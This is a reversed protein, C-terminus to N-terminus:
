LGLGAAIKLPVEVERLDTWITFEITAAEAKETLNFTREVTVSRGFSMRSSSGASSPIERGARDLFRVGALEPIDRRFTFTVAQAADGWSPDGVQSITGEMPGAKISTGAKLAAMEHRHVQRETAVRVALTGRVALSTAGRTPVGDVSIEMRLKTGDDSIVPSMGFASQPFRPKVAPKQLDGGRDDTFGALTSRERDFGIIGGGPMSMVVGLTTGPFANFAGFDNDPDV